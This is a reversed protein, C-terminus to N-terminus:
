IKARVGGAAESEKDRFHSAGYGGGRPARLSHPCTGIISYCHFFM